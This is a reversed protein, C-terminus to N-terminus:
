FRHVSLLLRQGPQGSLLLRRREVTAVCLAACGLVNLRLSRRCDPRRRRRGDAGQTGCCVRIASGGELVSGHGDIRFTLWKASMRSEFAPAPSPAIAWAKILLIPPLPGCGTEVPCTAYSS